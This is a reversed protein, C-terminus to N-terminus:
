RASRPPSRCDVAKHVAQPPPQSPALFMQSSPRLASSGPQSVAVNTLATKTFILSAVGSSASGALATKRADIVSNHTGVVAIVCCQQLAPKGVLPRLDNRAPDTPRVTRKKDRDITVGDERNSRHGIRALDGQVIDRR